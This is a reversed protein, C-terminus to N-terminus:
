GDNAAAGGPRMAVLVFGAALLATAILPYAGRHAYSAYTIGDPLAAGGWLYAADLVTQVAFILNFVLLARLIAAKGFVIDEISQGAKPGPATPQGALAPAVSAARPAPFRAATAAPVGMGSVLMFVWFILRFVEILDLLAWLDILSLWYDIVPNAAGFLALFVVGLVVPM